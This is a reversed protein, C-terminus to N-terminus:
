QIILKKSFLTRGASDKAILFYTGKTLDSIWISQSDSSKQLIGLADYIEVTSFDVGKLEIYDSAPNPYVYATVPDFANIKLPFHDLRYLTPPGIPNLESTLYYQNAEFHTISEIQISAGAPLTLLYRNITGNSFDNSTFGSIEVIFPVTFTYGSLLITNTSDNYTGGTILGQVDISDVKEAQYTGPTKPLAYINTWNNGWNKTFIFLSDNYSFISEADFNTSLTSPSFDTQDFYSFNITDVTVTDNPTLLYDSILLRYVKLDTRSGSNNGFDAIYIYTSDFCIDEWDTNTANEIFVSRTINGSISDLEYLMPAGGSDNHTILKGELYILGSTEQISDQLTAIHTLQQGFGLSPLVCVFLLIYKLKM